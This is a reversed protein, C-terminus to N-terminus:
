RVPQIAFQGPPGLTLTWSASCRTRANTGDIRARSGGPGGTFHPPGLAWPAEIAQIPQSERILTQFPHPGEEIWQIILRPGSRDPDGGIVLLRYHGHSTGAQWAGGSAVHTLAPPIQLTDQAHAGM